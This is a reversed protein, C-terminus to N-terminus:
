GSRRRYVRVALLGLAAVLAAWAGARPMAGKRTLALHVHADGGLRRFTYTIFGEDEEMTELGPAAAPRSLEPLPSLGSEPIPAAATAEAEPGAAPPPTGAWGGFPARWFLAGHPREEPAPAKREPAAIRRQWGRGELFGTRDFFSQEDASPGEDSKEKLRRERLEEQAKQGERIRADNFGWQRELDDIADAQAKEESSRNAEELEALNDGLAQELRALDREARQRARRTDSEELLQEVQSRRELLEEVRERHRQSTPILRMREETESVWYGDPLRISWLTKGVQLSEQLLRPAALPLGGRLAPLTVYPEEYYVAVELPLESRGAQEVPIRLGERPAGDAAPAPPAEGVAVPRGNVAVGWLDAGPPLEVALFQLGKNALTYLARTRVTGDGGIVTTIDVLPVVADGGVIEIRQEALELSWGTADTARFARRVSSESVGELRFPLTGPEIPALRGSAGPRAELTVTHATEVVGVYYDTQAEAGLVIVPLVPPVEGGAGARPVRHVIDIAHESTVPSQLIVEVILGPPEGAPPTEVARSRQNRTELSVLEAAAPLRLRFRAVGGQRVQFLLHTNVHLFEEAVRAFSVATARLQTGRRRARVALAADARKSRYAVNWYSAGPPLSVWSPAAERALREWRAVEASGLEFEDDAALTWLVTEEQRGGDAAASALFPLALPRTPDDIRVEASWVIETRAEARGSLDAVLAPGGEGESVRWSRLSESEVHRVTWAAPLPVRHRLPGPNAKLYRSRVFVLLRDARILATADTALQVDDMVGAVALEEGEGSAYAHYLRDPTEGADIAFLRAPDTEAQADRFTARLMGALVDPLFRRGGGHHLGVYTEQKVAGELVLTALPGTAAVVARGRILLDAANIPRTFFVRLRRAGGEEVVSWELLETGSVEAVEWGGGVRYEARDAALGKVRFHERREVDYGDVTLRLSSYSLSELQSGGQGEKRPFSWRLEMGPATGLDLIATTRGGEELVVAGATGAGATGAGATGAGATGAGATGDGARVEAGPPLEARVVGAAGKLLRSAVLHEGFRSEVRGALDIELTHRGKGKVEIFPSGDRQAVGQPTGDLRIELIRARDFPLTITIWRETFVHLPVAGQLRYHGGEEEIRLVYEAHGLAMEYPVAAPPPAEPHALAWLEHFRKESVYAKPNGAGQGLSHSYPVLVTDFPPPPLERGAAMSQELGAEDARAAGTGTCLSLGAFLSIGCAILVVSAAHVAAGGPALRARRALWFGRALRALRRLAWAAAALTAVAALAECFPIMLLPSEWGIAVPVLTGLVLGWLVLIWFARRGRALGLLLAGAASTLFVGVAAGRWWAFTRYSLEVVPAGGLKVVTLRRGEPLLRYIPADRATDGDAATKRPALRTQAAPLDRAPAEAGALEEASLAGAASQERAAAHTELVTILPLRGSLLRTWFSSAFSTVRTEASADLPRTNGGRVFFRYGDPHHIKWITEGVPIEHGRAADRLVPGADTWAGWRGLASRTGGPAPLATQEYAFHVAAYSLPPLPISATTAGEPATKEAPREGAAARSAGAVLGTWVGRVPEGNVRAALFRSGAPLEVTLAQLGSYALLVEAETRATGDAGVVTDLSLKRALHALVPASPHLATAVTGPDGSGRFRYAAVVRGDAWGAAFDPIDDADVAVLGGGPSAEVEVSGRSQIVLFREGGFGGELAAMPIAVASGHDHPVEYEIRLQRSGIWPKVFTLSHTGAANDSTREKIGEGSVAIVADEPLPPLRLALRDIARDVIALRVDLRVRLRREAALLHTVARYEGRAARHSVVLAIEPAALSSVLGAALRREPGAGGAAGAGGTGDGLGLAEVEEAALSRWGPSESSLLDLSPSLDIGLATETREAGAVFPIALELPLRDWSRDAPYEGRELHLEIELPTGERAARALTIRAAPDAGPASEEFRVGLAAGREVEALRTLRWPAPLSVGLEHLRGRRVVVQVRGHLSAAVEGVRLVWASRAEFRPPEPLVAIALRAGSTAFSFARLLEPGPAPGGVEGPPVEVLGAASEVLLSGAAPAALALYGRNSVAGALVPPELTFRDEALQVVGKLHLHVAGLVPEKLAVEVGDRTREWTHVLPGSVEVVTGGAPEKFLLSAAPRRSISVAAEWSFSASGPEPHLTVRHDAALLIPNEGVTKRGRWELRFKAAHGLSLRFRTREGDVATQLLGPEASGDARGPVDLELSATAAKILAAAVSSKEGDDKVALSFTLEVVHRGPGRVLLYARAAAEAPEAPPAAAAAESPQAPPAVAASAFAGPRDIVIWGPEGDVRVTGLSALPPGLDCFVWGDRTVLLDLLADVRATRGEVRGRYTASSVAFDLPPLPAAREVRSQAVAALVLARYADLEMIIGGPEAAKLREFEEYPVYVERVRIPGAGASGTSAERPAASLAAEALATRSEAPSEALPTRVVGEQAVLGCAVLVGSLATSLAARLLFAGRALRSAAM